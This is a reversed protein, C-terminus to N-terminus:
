YQKWAPRGDKKPYIGYTYWGMGNFKQAKGCKHCWRISPTETGPNFKGYLWNHIGIFCLRM